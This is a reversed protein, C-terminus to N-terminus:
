ERGTIPLRLSSGAPNLTITIVRAQDLRAAAPDTGDGPNVPFNPFSAGAVSLRIREGPQLTACVPRLPISAAGDPAHAFHRYGETLHFARGSADVRSLVCSADISKSDSQLRLLAEPAGAFQLPATLPASTYTLVDPRADITTRDVPGPPTAFAGGISPVPRWPDHVLRDAGRDACPGPALAGAREDLAARGDSSLGWDEGRDPWAAFDRWIRAGLDFLRVPAGNIPQPDDGKLWHDFWRIQLQDIEGIASEGFDADGVRRGWPFHAWPGVVLRAAAGAAQEYRRYAAVTGPLHTDYWGSVFLAPPGRATLAEAHTCPSLDAWSPSAVDQELWDFYHPAYHRYRELVTARAPVPDHFPPARSAAYLAHFADSDGNLKASEAGLQLAWILGAALCFADNEYAWYRRLDWGIMAPAIAKLAPAGGAAALLQTDGQYSFGYMGVAGTSGPLNAAWAVADAGDAQDNAFLRFNGESTGRGRVDQIAVVYGQAAYWAPHAYCVTSAIRRGYPQRMLLVPYDDDGEPRYV